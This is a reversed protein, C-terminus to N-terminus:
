RPRQTNRQEDERKPRQDDLRRESDEFPQLLLVCGGSLLRAPFLAAAVEILRDRRTFKRRGLPHILVGEDHERQRREVKEFQRRVLRVLQHGRM